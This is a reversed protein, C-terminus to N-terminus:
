TGVCCVEINRHKYYWVPMGYWVPSTIYCYQLRGLDDARRQLIEINPVMEKFKECMEQIPETSIIKVNKVSRKEFVSLAARTFKGTGAGLEVITFPESASHTKFAGVKELLFEVSDINYKPRAKEYIDSVATSSWAKFANKNM